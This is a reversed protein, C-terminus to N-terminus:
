LFTFHSSGVLLGVLPHVSLAPQLTAHVRSFVYVPVSLLIPVSGLLVSCFLVSCFLASCFLVSCFLVTCSLVPCFLDSFSCCHSSCYNELKQGMRGEQNKFGRGLFFLFIFVSFIKQFVRPIHISGLYNVSLKCFVSVSSVAM